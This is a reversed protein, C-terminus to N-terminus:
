EKEESIFGIAEFLRINKIIGISEAMDLAFACTRSRRSVAGREEVIACM